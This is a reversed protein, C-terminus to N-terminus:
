YVTDYLLRYLEVTLSILLVSCNELSSYKIFMPGVCNLLWFLKCLLYGDLRKKFLIYHLAITPICQYM